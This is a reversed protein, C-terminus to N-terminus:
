AFAAALAFCYPLVLPWPSLEMALRDRRRAELADDIADMVADAQGGIDGPLRKAAAAALRPDYLSVARMLGAELEDIRAKQRARWAAQREAATMAM